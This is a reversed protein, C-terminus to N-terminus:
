LTLLLWEIMIFLFGKSFLLPMSLFWGYSCVDFLAIPVITQTRVRFLGSSFLIRQM